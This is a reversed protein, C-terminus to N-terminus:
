LSMMDSVTLSVIHKSLLFLMGISPLEQLYTKFLRQKQSLATIKKDKFALYCLTVVRINKKDFPSMMDSQKIKLNILM